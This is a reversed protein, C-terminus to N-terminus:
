ESSKLYPRTDSLPRILASLALGKVFPVKVADLAEIMVRVAKGLHATQIRIADQVM